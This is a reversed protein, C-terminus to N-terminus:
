STAGDTFQSIVENLEEYMPIPEGLSCFCYSCSCSLLHRHKRASFHQNQHTFHTCDFLHTTAVLHQPPLSVYCQLHFTIWHAFCSVSDLFHHHINTCETLNITFWWRQTYSDTAICTHSYITDVAAVHQAYRM